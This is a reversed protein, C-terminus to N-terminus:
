GVMGQQKLCHYRACVELLFFLIFVNSFVLVHWAAIDHHSRLTM